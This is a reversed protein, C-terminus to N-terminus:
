GTVRISVNTKLTSEASGRFTGQVPLTNAPYYSASVPIYEGTTFLGATPDLGVWGAGSLWVEVWAHLEHGDLEPNFCYGSVFRSPYGLNRLIRIMMWSLDRCSGQRSNFCDEPEILHEGYRIAHKWDSSIIQCLNRLFDVQDPNKSKINDVWLQMEASLLNHNDLFLELATKQQKERATDVLFDFPNFPKSKVKAYMKVDLFDTEDNYWCQHYLNNEADVRTSIGEPTPSISLEFSMLEM